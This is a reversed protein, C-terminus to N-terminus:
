IIRLIAMIVLLMIGKLGLLVICCRIIKQINKKKKKSEKEREREREREKEREMKAAGTGRAMRVQLPSKM